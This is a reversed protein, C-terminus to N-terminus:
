LFLSTTSGIVERYLLQEKKSNNTFQKMKSRIIAINKLNLYISKACNCHRCSAFVLLVESLAQFHLSWDGDRDAFILKQITLLTRLYEM